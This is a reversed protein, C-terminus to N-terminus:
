ILLRRNRIYIPTLAKSFAAKSFYSSLGKHLLAKLSFAPLLFFFALSIPFIPLASQSLQKDAATTIVQDSISCIESGAVFYDENASVTKKHNQSTNEIGAHDFLLLNISKKVPCASLLFLALLVFLLAPKAKENRTTEKNILHKYM